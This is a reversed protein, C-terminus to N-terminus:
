PHLVAPHRQRHARLEEPTDHTADVVRLLRIRTRVIGRGLAACQMGGHVPDDVCGAQNMYTAVDGAEFSWDSRIADRPGTVTPPPPPIATTGNRVANMADEDFQPDGSSRTVWAGVVTGDASQTIRLEVKTWSTPANLMNNTQFQNDVAVNDRDGGGSFVEPQIQPSDGPPGQPPQAYRHLEDVLIQGPNMGARRRREVAGMDPRWARRMSRMMDHYYPAAGLAQLRDGNIQEDLWEELQQEAQAERSTPTPDSPLIWGAVSAVPLTPSVAARGVDTPQVPAVPESPTGLIPDDVVHHQDPMAAPPTTPGAHSPPVPARAPAGRGPVIVGDPLM